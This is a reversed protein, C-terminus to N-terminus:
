ESFSVNVKVGLEQDFKQLWFCKQTPHAKTLIKSIIVDNLKEKIAGAYNKLVYRNQLNLVLCSPGEKPDLEYKFIVKLSIPGKSGPVEPGQSM